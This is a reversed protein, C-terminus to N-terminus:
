TFNICLFIIVGISFIEIPIYSINGLDLTSTTPVFSTKLLPITIKGFLEIRYSLYLKTAIVSINSSNLYVSAIPSSLLSTAVECFRSINISSLAMKPLYIQFPFSLVSFTDIYQNFDWFYIFFHPFLFLQNDQISFSYPKLITVLFNTIHKQLAKEM